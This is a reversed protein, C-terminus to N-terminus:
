FGAAGVRGFSVSSGWWTSCAAQLYSDLSSRLSLHIQQPPTSGSLANWVNGFVALLCDRFWGGLSGHGLFCGHGPHAYLVHNEAKEPSAKAAPDLCTPRRKQHTSNNCQSQTNNFLIFYFFSFLFHSLFAFFRFVLNM